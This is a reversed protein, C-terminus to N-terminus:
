ELDPEGSLGLVAKRVAHQLEVAAAWDAGSTRIPEGVTIDVAGRRPFHHEPRLITRTGRIAVPVVPVGSRAAVAFAGMRFPRLGPARALRGEPFIVLSQGARVLTTLRGTDAVGHEREHREVFHQGLRKLVFGNLGQHELVEAAVFRFSQPMVSALVLPDIWSPHNAVVISTGRPLHDLGRVTIATGTFRALLRAAGQAVWWRWRPRPLLLLLVVVSLGLVAYVVWAWVAFAVAAGVRRARRISPIAGRLRLRALEWWVARPRAGIKGAQYIAQTAARRIKGSSTKLVTRPPALVVDDPAVGLLDVTTAGIESHLAARADDGTARTEALIVLREAGGSPDPSAFVAVCGKRVGKLNGVAEELEAPHLNRGARIIVDKVRGTVYLDADALYGLDGTDLWDDHFLSRTAPANNFYGATASPGRFEVRGECRDGLETGAADVIRIEHGPLPRGCAVFRLDAEGPRAAEARGSRVFTDRRIRDVLPGRGLPPFALGVSSEALGYVPTMAERRFGYPAFRDGFREITAASVPEAGNYALRWSSLDLGEIEDDRIKSLCLEYAFNPGASMTARNAHIAWLWRSPRILFSQPSMVVLPVGFYMCGLWAGILGMDHYLPLWSVFTDSGSAAAAQGMVRINALLNSHTLAVGKPQGTSGSTYQVLALDDACPRPLVDESAGTLSEPVVVHRLSEVNARLLHGLTVAEPVTVLLTARANALIGATRRLHDALQSPRAPPYVPVPVAGAVVVGAFTVFYARCTPLMIAVTEGPVVDHAILGAALAAAEQRLAAYTLDVPGGDDDLVRIHTRDPNAAVHYNLVDNLTSATEPLLAGPAAAPLSVMGRGDLRVSRSAPHAHAVAAALDRPTEANALTDPPLAVGLKDQVRLLLEALELSGIGLNDFTSDLTVSPPTAHPHVEAVLGRVLALVPAAREEPAM